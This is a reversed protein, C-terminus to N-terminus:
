YNKGKLRSLLKRRQWVNLTMILLRPLSWGTHICIGQTWGWVRGWCSKKGFFYKSPTIRRRGTDVTTPILM